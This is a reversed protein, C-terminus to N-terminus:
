AKGGEKREYADIGSRLAVLPLLACKMRTPSIQKIGLRALIGTPGLGKLEELTHGKAMETLVSASAQSIACGKGTFKAEGIRGEGDLRLQLEVSDGCLPNYEEMKIDTQPLVGYNRPNQYYDLIIESYLDSASM